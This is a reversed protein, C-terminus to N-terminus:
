GLAKQRIYEAQLAKLKPDDSRIKEGMIIICIMTVIMFVTIIVPMNYKVWDGTIVLLMTYFCLLIAVIRILDLIRDKWIPSIRIETTIKM